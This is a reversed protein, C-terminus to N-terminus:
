QVTVMVSDRKLTAGTSSEWWVKLWDSGKSIGLVKKKEGITSAVNEIGLPAWKEIRWRVIKVGTPMSATGIMSGGVSLTTSPLSFTYPSTPTPSTTPATSTTGVTIKVSDRYLTAGSSNEWWVKLWDSGSSVGLVKKNEGITSAVNEIGLPGWRELRWRVKSVGTPKSATATMSAGVALYTSPVSYTYTGSTAPPSTTTTPPPTSTTPSTPITGLATGLTVNKTANEVGTIDAGPNTGDTAKATYASGSALRYNGGAYDVFGTASTTSPYFNGSPYASAPAAVVINGLVVNGPAYKTLPPVGEGYNNGFIGYNGRNGVNNRFAFRVTAPLDTFLVLQNGSTFMTNHEIALDTVDAMVQIMRGNGYYIPGVNIRDVVNHTILVRRLPGAVTGQPRAVLNIGNASNRIRNYRFTIDQVICWTCAGNQNVSKWVIAFGDQADAWNNEFVNGEILLRQASKLEFSNKVTWKGKWAPPKYFYNRRITIDSPVLGPISADAGGFMVNEGAGELHNNEIKYPGPGNWGLIAQTDQGQGHCESLYSDIVASTASNLEVCRKLHVTGHGHLYVRDLIINNAIQTAGHSPSGLRVLGYNLTTSSTVGVEIGILRYHHASNDTGLAPMSNPSLIKPLVGAYAPTIRTGPAPLSADSASTRITIWGSGSKNRLYFNGVYSAGAQLTVVDGPQAQDLAQQLNGGSPVAITKGTPAVIRTDVTSRPLEPANTSTGTLLASALQPSLDGTESPATASERDTCGAALLFTTCTVTLHRRLALLRM